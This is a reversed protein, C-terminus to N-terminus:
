LTSPLSKLTPEATLFMQQEELRGPKTGLVWVLHSRIVQLKTELSDLVRKM